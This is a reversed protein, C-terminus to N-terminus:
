RCVLLKSSCAAPIWEVLRFVEYLPLQRYYCAAYTGQYLCSCHRSNSAYYLVLMVISKTESNRLIALIVNQGGTPVHDSKLWSISICAVFWYQQNTVICAIIIGISTVSFSFELRGSWVGSVSHVCYCLLVPFTCISVAIYAVLELTM